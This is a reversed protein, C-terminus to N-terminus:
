LIRNIKNCQTILKVSAYCNASWPPCLLDMYYSINAAYTLICVLIGAGILQCVTLVNTESILYWFGTLHDDRMKLLDFQFRLM